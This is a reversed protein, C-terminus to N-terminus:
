EYGRRHALLLYGGHLLWCAQWKASRGEDIVDRYALLHPAAAGYYGQMFEKTLSKEDLDPNWMLHTILWARLRVFDGISSGCDGQEFMGITNHNVFFRINPALSRYNPHPLLYNSFNTVYDWVFLQPAIKSWGVIDDRFARNQPEELSQVFSCEISCLRVVVNARPRALKPPKRTYQYALTEVLVNPFEKEIDAAVANVFRLLLGSPSQEEEEIAKCKVCECRGMWDNQSISSSALM